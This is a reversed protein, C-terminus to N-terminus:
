RCVRLLIIVKVRVPSWNVKITGNQSAQGQRHASLLLTLDWSYNPNKKHESLSLLAKPACILPTATM